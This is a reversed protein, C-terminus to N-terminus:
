LSLSKFFLPIYIGKIRGITRETIFQKKGRKINSNDLWTASLGTERQLKERSGTDKGEPSKNSKRNSAAKGCQKAVWLM